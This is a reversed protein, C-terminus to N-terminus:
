YSLAGPKSGMCDTVNFSYRLRPALLLEGNKKLFSTKKEDKQYNGIKRMEDWKNCKMGVHHVCLLMANGTWEIRKVAASRQTNKEGIGGHRQIGIV